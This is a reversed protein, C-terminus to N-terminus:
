RIKSLLTRLFTALYYCRHLALWVIVQKYDRGSSLLDQTDGAFVDHWQKKTFLDHRLTIYALECYYSQLKLRTSQKLAKNPLICKIWMVEQQYYDASEDLYNSTLSASNLRNYVYLAKPLYAIRQVTPLCQSLFVLDERMSLMQPFHAKSELLWERRLLKNWLAGHLKGTLIDDLVSVGDLSSPQQSRLIEGERTLEKYDCIVMDADTERAKNMMQELLDGEIKDDADVYLLYEGGANELAVERAHAVGLHDMHIVSIRKDKAAWEDCLRTSDDTSGDDVLLLEFDHFTQDLISKICVPIYQEVNYLVIAISIVSLNTM